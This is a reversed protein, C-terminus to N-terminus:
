KMWIINWGDMRTHWKNLRLSNKQDVDPLGCITQDVTWKRSLKGLWPSAKLSNFNEVDPQISKFCGWLFCYHHYSSNVCSHKSLLCKPLTNCACVCGFRKNIHKPWEFDLPTRWPYQLYYDTIRDAFPSLHASLLPLGIVRRRISAPNNQILM